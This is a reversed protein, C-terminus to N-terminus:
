PKDWWVRSTLLDGGALADVAAKYNVPNTNAEFTPYPFRRPITGNTANNPYVVPTLNPYGTRRWNTWSEYFDLMTNTHIWYQTNIMELGNAANYPRAALYANAEAETITLAPDYQNLYTMAARVGNNYHEMASGSTTIGFRQAAEALLLETEAYTLVFTVGNRKLMGPHPSSYDAFSTFSPDTTIDRGAIGSLDRGNPMGKQVAPNSNFGPNQNKDTPSTYLQTVAVKGLRPDNMSRLMDIFTKSWKVYYHEQGGEGILVQSNRNITTRGGTADHTVYANDANSTFTKGQVKTAYAQATAPDVKVLRMAIRLLLSNGFRQWQEINGKYFVDGAPRDAAPDLANTAEEVEKLLDAYIDQQRDYSPFFNGTYYGLGAQFYPVDGYLDTIRQMIIARMLRSIQHLNKYQAKDKTFQVLDAVPKVQDPYAKEWYAATYGANLLYKDGAWYGVVTSLGQVMTSAYILNARWTEYSFDTSGTYNLQASTLLYNPDFNAQSSTLPNTNIEEFNKTCGQALLSGAVLLTSISKINLKM